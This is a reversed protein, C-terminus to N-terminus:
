YAVPDGVAAFSSADIVFSTMECDWILRYSLPRWM